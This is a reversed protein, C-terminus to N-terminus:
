EDFANMIISKQTGLLQQNNNGPTKAVNTKFPDTILISEQRTKRREPSLPLDEDPDEFPNIDDKSKNNNKTSLNTFPDDDGFNDSFPQSVPKSASLNNLDFPDSNPKSSMSPIQNIGFPDSVPKSSSLMNVGFPDDDLTDESKTNFPTNETKLHTNTQGKTKPADGWMGDDDWDDSSKVKKPEKPKKLKKKSKIPGGKTSNIVNGIGVGMQIDGTNGPRKPAHKRPTEFSARGQQSFKDSQFGKEKNKTM